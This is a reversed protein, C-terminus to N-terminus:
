KLVIDSISNAKTWPAASARNVLIIICIKEKPFRVISHRFGITSGTHSIREYGKYTDMVWGFGYETKQGNNLTAPTFILKLSEDTVVDNGYLAADWKALDRLSSYVGGDGLVASTLSQDTRQFSNGTATYGFARHKIDNVGNVFAITNDMALPTFINEELFSEFTEGSVTAVIHALTAYGGNSYRYASGPVFYTNPQKQLLAVVDADLLQESTSDPIIGEYDIMGAQHNLLHRVTINKAYAPFGAILDGLKSDYSLKGQEVLIVIAMATFAKSLSALRYNTQPHSAVKNEVDQLGYSKEFIVHGDKSVLVSAGPVLKSDYETFLADIQEPVTQAQSHTFTFFACFLVIFARQLIQM